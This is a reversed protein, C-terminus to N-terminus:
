YRDVRGTTAMDPQDAHVFPSTAQASTKRRTSTHGTLRYEARQKPALQNSTPGPCAIASRAIQLTLIDSVDNTSLLKSYPLGTPVLDFPLPDSPSTNGFASLRPVTRRLVSFRDEQQNINLPFSRLSMKTGGQSWVAPWFVVLLCSATL